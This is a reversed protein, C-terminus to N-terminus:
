VYTKGLKGDWRLVHSTSKNKYRKQSYLECECKVMTKRVHCIVNLLIYISIAPAGLWVNTRASARFKM